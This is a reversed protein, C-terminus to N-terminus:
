SSLRESNNPRIRRALDVDKPMITVRKAHIACLNTDELLGILYSEAAEQLAIIAKSQFRLDAKFDQAIERVLRQFPLKRILLETSKQYKRIERLAVTGPRYRQPKKVGTTSAPASKRAANLNLKEKPKKENSSKKAFQSPAPLPPPAPPPLPPATAKAQAPPPSPLPPATVPEKAQAKKAQPATTTPLTKGNRFIKNNNVYYNWQRELIKTRIFNKFNKFNINTATFKADNNLKIANKVNDDEESINNKDQDEFWEGLRREEDMKYGETPLPAKAPVTKGSTLILYGDKEKYKKWKNEKVKDKIFEIFEIFFNETANYNERFYKNFINIANKVNEDEESINNKDQEEFWEGLRREEQLRDNIEQYTLNPQAKAPATASSHPDFEVDTQEPNAPHPPQLLNVQKKVKKAKKASQPPPGKKPEVFWGKGKIFNKFYKFDANKQYLKEDNKLHELIQIAYDVYINDDTILGERNSDRERIYYSGLTQLINKKENDKAIIFNNIDSLKKVTEYLKLFGPEYGKGSLHVEHFNQLELIPYIDDRTINKKNVYIKQEKLKEQYSDEESM